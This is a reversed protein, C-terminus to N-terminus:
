EIDLELRDTIYCRYNNEICYNQIERILEEDTTYELLFIDAGQKGYREIYETFYEHEEEDAREFSHNEWNISSFVSEQNIGTLIDQWDGGADCYADVFTDGGNIIVEKGTARLGEMIISLGDLIDSDPYAYYVDCNDVFFGDIGKQILEESLDNLLFDQWEKSSVDIWCEEEWHEYEGLMIGEFTDYYDRFNELSGVNIYSYVTHGKAQFDAIDQKSIYQADIVITEYEGLEELNGEYNLFVGYTSTRNPISTQNSTSTQNPISTQNSTNTYNSTNEKTKGCGTFISILLINIIMFFIKKM